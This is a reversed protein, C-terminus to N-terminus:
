NYNWQLQLQNFRLQGMDTLVYVNFVNNVYYSSEIICIRNNKYYNEIRVDLQGTEILLWHM